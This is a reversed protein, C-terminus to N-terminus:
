MDVTASFTQRRTHRTWDPLRPNSRANQTVGLPQSRSYRCTDTNCGAQSPGPSATPGFDLQPVTILPPALARPSIDAQSPPVNGLWSLFENTPRSRALKTSHEAIYRLRDYYIDRRHEMFAKYTGISEQIGSAPGIIGDLWAYHAKREESSLPLAKPRPEAVERPSSRTSSMSSSTSLSPTSISSCLDLLSSVSHCPTFDSEPETEGSSFM